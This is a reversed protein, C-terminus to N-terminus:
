RFLQGRVAGDPFEWTTLNVYFGTPDEKLRTIMPADPTSVAGSIAFVNKPVPSLFLPLRVDGNEGLGGEHIRGSLPPGTNVWALSYDVRDTRPHLFTTGHGDPDGAKKPDGAPIEQGGDALARMRGGHIIGLPNVPKAFPRLQGRVAGGPFADTHLDVYFGDPDRRLREALAASSLSTQGAASYVSTPMPTAFLDAVVAGDSGVAGQHLHARAPRDVGNWSLAFTVRDGKVKVLAIAKGDRDGAARGDKGPVQQDGTLRAVLSVATGGGPSGGPGDDATAPTTGALGACVIVAVVVATLRRM